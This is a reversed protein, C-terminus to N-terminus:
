LLTGKKFFLQERERMRQLEAQRRALREDERAQRNIITQLQKNYPIKPRQM